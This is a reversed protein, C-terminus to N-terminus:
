NIDEKEVARSLSSWNEDSDRGFEVCAASKEPTWWGPLLGRRQEVTRLFRRFGATGDAAGGYISDADAEGELTYEDEMRMRYADILLRYVDREPRDHLWTGNDLRTFPKTVPGDLGKPPSLVNSGANTSSFPSSDAQSGQKGCSKKHSKWDAKQCERSCYPTVSCKACRKLTVAPPSKKCSACASM